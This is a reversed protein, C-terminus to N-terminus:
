INCLLRSLYPHILISEPQGCFIRRKNLKTLKSYPEFASVPPTQGNFAPASGLKVVQQLTIARWAAAAAWVGKGTNRRQPYPVPEFRIYVSTLNM